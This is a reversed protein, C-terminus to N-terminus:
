FLCGSIFCPLAKSIQFFKTGRYSKSIELYLSPLELSACQIYQSVAVISSCASMCNTRKCLLLLALVENWVLQDLQSALKQIWAIGLCASGLQPLYSYQSLRSSSSSYHVHMCAYIQLHLFAALITYLLSSNSSSSSSAIYQCSPLGKNYEGHTRALAVLTVRTYSPLPM